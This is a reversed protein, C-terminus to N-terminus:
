RKVGDQQIARLRAALESALDHDYRDEGAAPSSAILEDIRRLNDTALQVNEPGGLALATLGQFTLVKTLLEAVGGGVAPARSMASPVGHELIGRVEGLKALLDPTASERSELFLALAQLRLLVDARVQMDAPFRIRSVLERAVSDRARDKDCVFTMATNVAWTPDQARANCIDRALAVAQAAARVRGLDAQVESPPRRAADLSNLLEGAARLGGVDVARLATFLLSSNAYARLQAGPRRDDYVWPGIVRGDRDIAGRVFAEGPQGNEVTTILLVLDCAAEPHAYPPEVSHFAVNFSSFGPAGEQWPQAMMWAVPTQVLGPDDPGPVVPPLVSTEPLVEPDICLLVSPNQGYENNNVRNRAWGGAAPDMSPLRNAAASVFLRKHAPDWYVGTIHGASWIQKLPKGGTMASDFIQLVCPAQRQHRVVLVIELGQSAKLVDDVVVAVPRPRDEDMANGAVCRPPQLPGPERVIEGSQNVLAFVGRGTNWDWGIVAAHGQGDVSQSPLIEFQGASGSRHASTLDFARLWATRASQERTIAANAQVASTALWGGASALLPIAAAALLVSAVMKFSRWGRTVLRRAPQERPRGEREFLRDLLRNAASAEDDAPRHRLLRVPEVAPTGFGKWRGVAQAVEECRLLLARDPDPMPWLAEAGEDNIADAVHWAANPLDDPSMGLATSRLIGLLLSRDQALVDGALTPVAALVFEAALDIAGPEDRVVRGILAPWVCASGPDSAALRIQSPEVNLDQIKTHEDLLLGLVVLLSDSEPTTQDM